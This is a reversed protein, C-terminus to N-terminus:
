SIFLRENAYEHRMAAIELMPDFWGADERRVAMSGRVCAGAADLCEKLVRQCGEQGIRILKLAASCQGALSQYLYSMLAADLPVGQTAMQMGYVTLHHGRAEGAARKEEFRQLVAGPFLKLLMQLRRVGLQVSAERLERCIKLASIEGDIGCLAEVDGGLTAEYAFRVFPLDLHELAPMTQNKLFFLLGAEDKVIGLRVVEELGLSHAYAGTPFLPDNTQLLAPLWGIPDIPDIGM